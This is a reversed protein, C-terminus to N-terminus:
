TAGTATISVQQGVYWHVPPRLQTSLGVTSYGGDGICLPGGRGRRGSRLGNCAASDRMIFVCSIWRITYRPNLGGEGGAQAEQVAESCTERDGTDGERGKLSWWRSLPVGTSIHVELTYNQHIPFPSRLAMTSLPSPTHHLLLTADPHSSAAHRFLSINRCAFPHSSAAHETCAAHEPPSFKCCAWLHCSDAHEFTFAILM